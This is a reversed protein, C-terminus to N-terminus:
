SYLLMDDNDVRLVSGPPLTQLLEELAREVSRDMSRKSTDISHREFVASNSRTGRSLLRGEVTIVTKFDPHSVFPYSGFSVNPHNEVVQNLATVISTEDASLVVKYAAQREMQCSLYSAVNAIKAAFYEPVGPLIFINRCQLVPWDNPNDSLYRLKSHRPLTAMKVQADTLAVADAAGDICNGNSDSRGNGGNDSRRNMKDRLLQAMGSHLILDCHLATAVSKITVDDHTPGVGGSTVIVDVERQLRGIERIIDAPEDPVVVVRRLVVNHNRLAAAATNTNTDATYGKLIEDGIILLGVTKQSAPDDGFSACSESYDGGPTNHLPEATTTPAAIPPANKQPPAESLASLRGASSSNARSLHSATASGDERNTTAQNPLTLDKPPPQSKTKATLRGAREQDWDRLMYAPWYRPFSPPPEDGDGGASEPDGNTGAVALAPCPVTDRTTGLSTYGRDYLCCYPLQFLRLFHWVHGFSWDLIPNVRLFPPMYHSSPEFTGQQGANPDNSRTGLVFALPRPQHHEVLAKLGRSFKVGAPFAVMDLDCDRVTDRLFDLLEPFEDAHEFYVVRPRALPTIPRKRQQQQQRQQELAHARAALLLQLVVVADKGGNFSCVVSEDGYLRIAHDLTKLASEIHGRVYDDTCAMLRDYLHLASQYSDDSWEVRQDLLESAVVRDPHNHDNDDDEPPLHLIRWNPPVPANKNADLAHHDVVGQEEQPHNTASSPAAASAEPPPLNTSSSSSSPDMVAGAAAAAAAATPAANSNNNRLVNPRTRRPVAPAIQFRRLLRPTLLPPPNAAPATPRWRWGGGGLFTGAAATSTQPPLLSLVLLLPVVVVVLGRWLLRLRCSSRLVSSSVVPLSRVRRPSGMFDAPQKEM